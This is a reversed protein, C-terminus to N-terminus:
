PSWTRVVSAEVHVYSNSQVLAVAAIAAAIVLCLVGRTVGSKLRM